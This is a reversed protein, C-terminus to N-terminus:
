KVKKLFVSGQDIKEYFLQYKVELESVKGDPGVKVTVPQWDSISETPPHMEWMIWYDGSVHHLEYRLTALFEERTAVLISKTIDDPHTREEFIFEGYGADHYIGAIQSPKVSSPLPTEPVNPYLINKANKNNEEQEHWQKRRRSDTLEPLRSDILSVYKAPYDERDEEPIEFKDEMLKRALITAVYDATQFGNGVLVIGYNLEPIWLNTTQFTGTSGNHDYMVKKHITSRSWGLGYLSPKEDSFSAIIRPTRIDKHVVSPLTDQEHILCKLWRAYDVVNSVVGGAGSILEPAGTEQDEYAKTEPNWWYSSALHEPADQIDKLRIFTGNMGLPKWIQERLVDSIGKGTVTEIVHTLASYMRNCYQFRVRPQTPVPINRMNRVTDKVTTMRGHIEKPWSADHRSSGTRHSVADDLTLHSTLWPDPMVFDDPIISSFTTSWGDSLEDFDGSHILRSLAAATQAKSTSGM